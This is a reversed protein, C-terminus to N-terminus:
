GALRMAVFLGTKDVLTVDAAKAEDETAKRERSVADCVALVAQFKCRAWDNGSQLIAFASMYDVTEVAPSPAAFGKGSLVLDIGALAACGSGPALAESAVCVQAVDKQASRSSSASATGVLSQLFDYYRSAAYKPPAVEPLLMRQKATRSDGYEAYADDVAQVARVHDGLSASSILAERARAEEASAQFQPDVMPEFSQASRSVGSQNPQLVSARADCTSSMIRFYDEELFQTQPPILPALTSGHFHHSMRKQELSESALYERVHHYYFAHAWQAHRLRISVDPDGPSSEFYKSKQFDLYSQLKVADTKEVLGLIQAAADQEDGTSLDVRECIDDSCRGTLFVHAGEVGLNPVVKGSFGEVDVAVNSFSAVRAITLHETKGTSLASPQGIPIIMADKLLHVMGRANGISGRGAGYHLVVEQFNQLAASEANHKIACCRAHTGYKDVLDFVRKSNGGQSTELPQLDGVVGKMTVRFPPTLKNRLSRFTSVCRGAPPVAYTMSRLNETTAQPLRAITTGSDKGVADVSSLTRIRTLSEGNWSNKAVGHIRVRDLEVICTAVEGSARREQTVDRQASRSLGAGATEVLNRLFDHHMSIAFKPPAVDPLLARQRSTRSNLYEAHADNVAQVARAHDGLSASTILAERARRRQAVRFNRTSWPSSLSSRARSGSQALQRVSARADCTSSLIRVYDKELFQKFATPADAGAVDLVEAIEEWAAWMNVNFPALDEPKMNAQAAAAENKEDDGELSRLPILPALTSGHFHHSMRKQDLSESVLYERVHHYYFSHAWQAHRLRMPVDPDGPSSEFYKAKQFDLHSQPKVADTKEVLGLIQAAADQEEVGPNPMVKGSLGELDVAVNSFSATTFRAVANNNHGKCRQLCDRLINKDKVALVGTILRFADEGRNWHRMPSTPTTSAGPAWSTVAALFDLALSGWGRASQVSTQPSLAVGPLCTGSSSRGSAPAARGSCRSRFSGLIAAASMGRYTELRTLSRAWEAFSPKKEDAKAIAMSVRGMYLSQGAGRSGRTSGRRIKPNKQIHVSANPGFFVSDNNAETSRERLSAGGGGFFQQSESSDRSRRDQGESSFRVAAPQTRRPAAALSGDQRAQRPVVPGSSGRPDEVVMLSPEQEAPTTPRGVLPAPPRVESVEAEESEGADSDEDSETVYHPPALHLKGGGAQPRRRLEEADQDDDGKKKANSAVFARLSSAKNASRHARPSSPRPLECYASSRKWPEASTLGWHPADDGNTITDRSPGPRQPFHDVLVKPSLSRNTAAEPDRKSSLAQLDRRMDQVDGRLALLENQIQPLVIEQFAVQIESRLFADMVSTQPFRRTAAAAQAGHGGSPAAWEVECHLRGTEFERARADRFKGAAGEPLAPAEGGAGVLGLAEEKAAAVQSPQM